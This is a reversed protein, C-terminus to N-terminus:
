WLCFDLSACFSNGALNGANRHYLDWCACLGVSDPLYKKDKEQRAYGCFFFGLFSDYNRSSHKDGIDGEVSRLPPFSGAVICVAYSLGGFVPISFAFGMFGWDAKGRSRRHARLLRAVGRLELGLHSLSQAGGFFRREMLRFDGDNWLLDGHCIDFAKDRSLPWVSFEGAFPPDRVAGLGGFGVDIAEHVCIIGFNAGM